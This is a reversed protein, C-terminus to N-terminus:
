KIFNKLNKLTEVNVGASELLNKLKAKQEENPEEEKKINLLARLKEATESNTQKLLKVAEVVLEPGEDTEAQLLAANTTDFSVAEQQVNEVGTETTSNQQQELDM